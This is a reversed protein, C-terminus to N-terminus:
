EGDYRPNSAIADYPLALLMHDGAHADIERSLDHAMVAVKAYASFPALSNSQRDILANSFAPNFELFEDPEGETDSILVDWVNVPYGEVVVEEKRVIKYSVGSPATWSFRNLAGYNLCAIEFRACIIGHDTADFAIISQEPSFPSELSEPSPM